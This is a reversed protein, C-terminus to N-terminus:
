YLIIEQSMRELLPRAYGQGIFIIGSDDTRIYRLSVWLLKVNKEANIEGLM